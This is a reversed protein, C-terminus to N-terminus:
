HYYNQHHTIRTDRLSNYHRRKLPISVTRTQHRHTTIRFSRGSDASRSSNIRRTTFRKGDSARKCSMSPPQRGDCVVTVPCRGSFVTIINDDSNLYLDRARAWGSSDSAMMNRLLNRRWVHLIMMAVDNSHINISM